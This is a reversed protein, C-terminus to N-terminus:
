KVKEQSAIDALDILRARQWKGDDGYPKFYIQDGSKTVLRGVLETGDKLRLRVLNTPKKPEEPKRTTSEPAADVPKEYGEAIAQVTDVLKTTKPNERLEGLFAEAKKAPDRGEFDLVIRKAIAITDRPEATGKEFAERARILELQGHEDVEKLDKNVDRIVSGVGLKRAIQEVEGYLKIARKYFRQQVAREALGQLRVMKQLPNEPPARMALVLFPKFTKLFGGAAMFGGRECKIKGDLGFLVTHPMGVGGIGFQNMIRRNEVTDADLRAPVCKSLFEEVVKPEKLVKAMRDCDKNDARVFEVFLPLRALSAAKQAETFSTIWELEDEESVAVSMSAAAFMGTVAVLTKIARM